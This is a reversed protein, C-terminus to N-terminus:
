RAAGKLKEVTRYAGLGLMGFLLAMLTDLDLVPMQVTKGAALLAFNFLPNLLFQYVLGAGCVWGVFPRWGAQFMNQSTAEVNNTQTQAAAIQTTASLEALQGDLQMKLLAVKAAEAAKPDPFLRDILQVGFDLVAPMAAAVLPAVM